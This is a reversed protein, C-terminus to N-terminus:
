LYISLFRFLFLLTGFQLYLSDYIQHKTFATILNSTLPKGIQIKMRKDGPKVIKFWCDASDGDYSYDGLGLVM